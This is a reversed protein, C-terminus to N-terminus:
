NLVQRAKKLLRQILEEKAASYESRAIKKNYVLDKKLEEYAKRAQPNLRLYDRFLLHEKIESSNEKFFHLHFFGTTQESDYLVCYRRGEIGYEGKYAYGLQEFLEKRQDLLSLNPVVGLIDVIPKAWLDPISTSGCHHLQMQSLQLLSSLVESELQFAQSWFPNPPVLTVAIRKLGLGNKRYLEIREQNM